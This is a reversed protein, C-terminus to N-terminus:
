PVSFAGIFILIVVPILTWAVELPSNHTFSAPEPNRKASFRFAAYLLLGVVFLTIVTIIYFVFNDLWQLDRALETVPPQFDIGKAWPKGVIELNELSSQSWVSTGSILTALFSFFKLFRM